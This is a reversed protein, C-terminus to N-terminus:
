CGLQTERDCNVRSLLIVEEILGGKHKFPTLEQQM